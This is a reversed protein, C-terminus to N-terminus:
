LGESKFELPIENRSCFDSITKRFPEIIDTFTTGFRLIVRKGSRMFFIVNLPFLEIKQIETASLNQVPFLSNKKLRLTNQDIEVFKDGRGLGSNIQYWAFGALFIITILLTMNSVITEINMILWAIAVLSCIIGFILQFIRTLKNSKNVELSFYNSDM